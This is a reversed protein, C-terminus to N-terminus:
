TDVAGPLPKGEGGRGEGGRGAGGRGPFVAALSISSEAWPCTALLRHGLRALQTATGRQPPPPWSRWESFILGEPVAPDKCKPAPAGQQDTGRLVARNRRFRDALRRGPHFALSPFLPVCRAM